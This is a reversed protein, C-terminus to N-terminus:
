DNKGAQCTPCYRHPVADAAKPLPQGEAHFYPRRNKLPLYGLGGCDNCDTGLKVVAQGIAAQGAAPQAAFEQLSAPAKPAAKKADQAILSGAALSGAVAASSQLWQRRTLSDPTSRPLSM